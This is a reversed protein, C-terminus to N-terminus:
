LAVFNMQRSVLNEAAIGVKNLSELNARISQKASKLLEMVSRNSESDALEVLKCEPIAAACDTVKISEM